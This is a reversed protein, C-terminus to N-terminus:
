ETDTKNVTSSKRSVPIRLVVESGTPKRQNFEVTGGLQDVGWKVLWLGLGSGHRLPTEGHSQIAALESMNIGPGEDEIRLKLTDSNVTATVTVVPTTSDNHEVGNELLEAVIPELMPACVYDNEPLSALRINSEPFDTRITDAAARIQVSVPLLQVDGTDDDRRTTGLKRAKKGINVLTAAHNQVTEAHSRASELSGSEINELVLTAYGELLNAETRLNHRLVRNMVELQQHNLRRDTVDRFVLANGIARNHHDTFESTRLEFDRQGGGLRITVQDGVPQGPTIDEIVDSVTRGELEDASRGLIAVASENLAIVRWKTDTVIVADVMSEVVRECAFWKPIPRAGLLDYRRLAVAYALGAFTFGAPTMDISSGYLELFTTAVNALVPMLTGLILTIAQMRYMTPMNFATRFLVIAGSLWLLYSYGLAVWYLPGWEHQHISIIGKVAPVVDVASWMFHHAPNTWVAVLAVMPIFSILITMGPTTYRDHGTYAFAFVFWAIPATLVGIWQISALVLKLGLDAVILEAIYGMSWLGSAAALVILGPAGPTKRHKWAITAAGVSVIGAVVILGVAITVVPESQAILQM